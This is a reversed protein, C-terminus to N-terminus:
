QIKELTQGLTDLADMAQKHVEDIEKLNNNKQDEAQGELVSDPVDKFESYYEPNQSNIYNFSQACAGASQLKNDKMVVKDGEFICSSVKYDLQDLLLYCKDTDVTEEFTKQKHPLIADLIVSKSINTVTKEKNTELAVEEDVIKYKQSINDAWNLDLTAEKVEKDMRNYVTIMFQCQTTLGDKDVVPKINEIRFLISNVQSTTAKDQGEVPAMGFVNHEPAVPVPVEVAAVAPRVLSLAAMCAFGAMMVRNFLSM